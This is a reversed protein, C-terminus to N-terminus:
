HKTQLGWTPTKTLLLKSGNEQLLFGGDQKLLFGIFNKIINTWSSM